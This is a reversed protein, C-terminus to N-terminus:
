SAFRVNAFHRALRELLQEALPQAEALKPLDTRLMADLTRGSQKVDLPSAELWARFMPADLEPHFQIGYSNGLRFAQERYRQTGSLRVAGPVADYADRHWHALSTKDPLSGFVPDAGAQATLSVPFVGLELGASGGHVGAGAAAALLQAGLCIGLCPRGAALREKLLAIEVSLFPHRDADYVAMPGGMAVVLAAEADRSEVSRFRLVVEFGSRRLPADLLGLGEMEEHMLIVARMGMSGEDVM